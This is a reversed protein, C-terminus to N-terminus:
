MREEQDATVEQDAPEEPDVALLQPAAESRM